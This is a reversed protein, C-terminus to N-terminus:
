GSQREEGVWLRGTMRRWRNWDGPTGTTHSGAAEASRRSRGTGPKRDERSRGAHGRVSDDHTNCLITRDKHLAVFAM